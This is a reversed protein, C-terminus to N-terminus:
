LVTHSSFTAHIAQEVGVRSNQELLKGAPSVVHGGAIVDRVAAGCNCQEAEDQYPQRNGPCFETFGSKETLFFL